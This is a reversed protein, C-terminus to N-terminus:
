LKKWSGAERYCRKLQQRDIKGTATYPMRKLLYWLRPVKYATLKKFCYTRLMKKDLTYGPRVQIFAAAIQGWHQDPVGVVALQDIAAMEQLVREIEEPFINLGGYNIMGNKRGLIFLYGKENLYGIDGVTTWAGSRCLTMTGSETLYHACVFPSKVFVLGAEGLHAPTGDEREVKISVAHFPRGVSEGPAHEEERCLAVFSLESAGYYEDFRSAPFAAKIRRKTVDPCKAGSCLWHFHKMSSADSSLLSELMTPVVIVQTPAKSEIMEWCRKPSFSDLLIVTAGFYLGSIAAYLFHTGLLSGAILITEQACWNLDRANCTFSNIWSAQDRIFGKPRGTSGSTFGLFFPLQMAPVAAARTKMQACAASLTDTSITMMESRPCREQWEPEVIMLQVNALKMKARLESAGLRPDFPVATWGIRAIAAFCQLFFSSSQLYLGIRHPRTTQKQALLWAAIQAVRQGWAQYSISGKADQVACKNPWRKATQNYTDTINM